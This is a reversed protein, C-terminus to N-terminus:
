IHKQLTMNKKNHWDNTVSGKKKSPFSRKVYAKKKANDALKAAVFRRKLLLKERAKLLKICNWSSKIKVSNIITNLIKNMTLYESQM